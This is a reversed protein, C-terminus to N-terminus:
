KFAFNTKYEVKRINGEKDFDLDGLCLQRLVYANKQPFIKHFLIYYKKGSKFVTHHGPGCVGNNEDSQLIPSTTGEKWPGYPSTSTSYRIKYTCNTAKGESYM